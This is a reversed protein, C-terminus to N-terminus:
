STTKASFLFQGINETLESAGSECKEQSWFDTELSPHFPNQQFLGSQKQFKKVLNRERIYNDLDKRLPLIKM